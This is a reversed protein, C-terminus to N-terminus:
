FGKNTAYIGSIALTQLANYHTLSRESLSHGVQNDVASQESIAHLGLVLIHMHRVIIHHPACLKRVVHRMPYTDLGVGQKWPM